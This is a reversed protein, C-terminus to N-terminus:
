LKSRLIRGRARERDEHSLDFEELAKDVAGSKNDRKQTARIREVVAIIASDDIEPRGGKGRWYCIM